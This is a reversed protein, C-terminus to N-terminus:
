EGCGPVYFKSGRYFHCGFVGAMKQLGSERSELFVDDGLEIEPWHYVSSPVTVLRCSCAKKKRGGKPQCVKGKQRVKWAVVFECLLRIVQVLSYM